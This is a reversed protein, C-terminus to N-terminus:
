ISYKSSTKSEWFLFVLSSRIQPGTPNDPPSPQLNPLIEQSFIDNSWSNLPWQSPHPFPVNDPCSLASCPHSCFFLFCSTRILHAWRTVIEDSSFTLLYQSISNFLFLVLYSLIQFCVLHNLYSWLTHSVIPTSLQYCLLYVQGHFDLYISGPLSSTQLGNERRMQFHFSFDETCVYVFPFFCHFWYSTM